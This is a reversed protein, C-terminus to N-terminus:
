IKQDTSITDKKNAALGLSLEQKSNGIQYDHQM